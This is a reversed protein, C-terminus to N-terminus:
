QRIPVAHSDAVPSDGTGNEAKGRNDRSLTQTM